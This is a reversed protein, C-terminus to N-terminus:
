YKKETLFKLCLEHIKDEFNEQPSNRIVKM